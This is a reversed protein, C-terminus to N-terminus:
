RPRKAGEGRSPDLGRNEPAALSFPHGGAVAGWSREFGLLLAMVSFAWFSDREGASGAGSGAGGGTSITTSFFANRLFIFGRLRNLFSFGAAKTRSPSSKRSSWFVAWAVMAKWRASPISGLKTGAKLPSPLTKRFFPPREFRLEARSFKWSAALRFGNSTWRKATLALIKSFSPLIFSAVSSRFFIIITLVRSDSGLFVMALLLM